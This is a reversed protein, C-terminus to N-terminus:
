FRGAMIYEEKSEEDAKPPFSTYVRWALDFKDINDYSVM